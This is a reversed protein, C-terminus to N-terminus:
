KRLEISREHTETSLSKIISIALAGDRAEDYKDDVDYFLYGVVVEQRNLFVLDPFQWKIYADGIYPAVIRGIFSSSKIRLADYRIPSYYKGDTVEINLSKKEIIYPIEGSNYIKVNIPLIGLQRVTNSRRDLQKSLNNPIDVGLILDAIQFRTQYNGMAGLDPPRTVQPACSGFILVLCLAILMRM